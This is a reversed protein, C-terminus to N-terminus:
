NDGLEPQYIAAVSHAIKGVNSGVLNALVVVTLRDDPYRVIHSVFGQWAGSHEVVRHGRAKALNWGFGYDYAEGNNLKVPTWM